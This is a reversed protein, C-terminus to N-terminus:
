LLETEKRKLIAAWTLHSKVDAVSCGMVRAVEDITLDLQKLEAALAVNYKHERDLARAAAVKAAKRKRKLDRAKAPLCFHEDLVYERMSYFHSLYECVQKRVPFISKHGPYLTHQPVEAEHGLTAIWVGKIRRYRVSIRKRTM